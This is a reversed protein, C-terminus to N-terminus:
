VLFPCCSAVATPPEWRQLRFCPWRILVTKTICAM